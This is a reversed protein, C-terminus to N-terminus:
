YWVNYKQRLNETHYIPSDARHAFENMDAM